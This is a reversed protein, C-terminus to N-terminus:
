MVLQLLAVAAAAPLFRRHPLHLEGVVRRDDGVGPPAPRRHHQDM